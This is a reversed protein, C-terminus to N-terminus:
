LGCVHAMLVLVPFVFCIRACLITGRYMLFSARTTAASRLTSSSWGIRRTSCSTTLAFTGITCVLTTCPRWHLFCRAFHCRLFNTLGEFPFRTYTNPPPPPPLASCLWVPTSVQGAHTKHFYGPKVRSGVVDLVVYRQEVSSAIVVPIRACRDQKLSGKVATGAHQLLQLEVEVVSLGASPAFTPLQLSVFLSTPVIGPRQVVLRDRVSAQCRYPVRPVKEALPARPHRSLLGLTKACPPWLLVM